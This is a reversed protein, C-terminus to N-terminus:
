AACIAPALPEVDGTEWVCAVQNDPSSDIVDGISGNNAGDREASVASCDLGAEVEGPRVRVDGAHVDFHGAVGEVACCVDVALLLREVYACRALPSILERRRAAEVPYVRLVIYADRTNRLATTMVVGNEM